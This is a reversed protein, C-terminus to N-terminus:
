GKLKQLVQTDTTKFSMRLRSTLVGLIVVAVLVDFFIGLEIILPLGETMTMGFFYIGNEMTILGVIQMIAQHRMVIITLGTLILIFSVAIIDKQMVRPLLNDVITYSLVIFIAYLATSYNVNVQSSMEREDQIESIVKFLAYPILIVKVLLTLLGAMYNHWGAGSHMASAICFMAIVASQLSVVQVARKLNMIRTQLFVVFVLLVSWFEM